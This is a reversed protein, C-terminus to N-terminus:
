RNVKPDRPKSKFNEKIKKVNIKYVNNIKNLYTKYTIFLGCPVNIKYAETVNGKTKILARIILKKEQYALTQSATDM